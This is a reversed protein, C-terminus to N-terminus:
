TMTLDFDVKIVMSSSVNNLHFFAIQESNEKEVIWRRAYKRVIDEIKIDFDNTIIIASKIKGHGKISIQKIGLNLSEIKWKTLVLFNDNM